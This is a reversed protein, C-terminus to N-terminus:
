VTLPRLAICCEVDWHDWGIETPLRRFRKLAPLDAPEYTSGPLWELYLHDWAQAIRILPGDSHVDVSLVEPLDMVGIPGGVAEVHQGVEFALDFTVREIPTADYSDWSLGFMAAHEWAVGADELHEVLVEFGRELANGRWPDRVRLYAIRAAPHTRVRAEFPSDPAGYRGPGAGEPREGWPEVGTLDSVRDWRSPAFGFKARFVRSFDSQSKFGSDLAITGLSKAPAGKMLYLARDLRARRTYEALTEGAIAKFIRHFHYPSFHAVEALENLGLDDTLHGRVHDMVVRVRELYRANIERTARSSATTTGNM